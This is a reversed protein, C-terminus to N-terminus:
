VRLGIVSVMEMTRCPVALPVLLSCTSHANQSASSELLADPAVSPRKTADGRICVRQIWAGSRCVLLHRHQGWHGVASCAGGSTCGGSCGWAFACQFSQAASVSNDHGRSAGMHRCPCVTCCKVATLTTIWHSITVSILGFLRCSFSFVLNCPNQEQQRAHPCM